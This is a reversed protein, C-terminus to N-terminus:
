KNIYAIASEAAIKGYVIALTIAGTSRAGQAGHAATAGAAFLGPIAEDAKTLVRSADDVAIGGYTSQVAPTILAAYYKPKDLRYLFKRGFEKDDSKADYSERVTKITAVLNEKNTKIKAALAEVSDASVFYGADNYGSMLKSEDIATQDFILFAESKTQQIMKQSIETVSQLDENVFRKGEHNVLASYSVLRSLSKGGISTLHCAPNIKIQQMDRVDGGVDLVMTIGDGTASTSGTTPRNVWTPNYKEILKPNGAFGGTAIIVAKANIAYKGDKSEVEIGSTKGANMIIKIAKTNVRCDVGVRVLEKTLYKVIHPGPASGDDTRVQFRDGKTVKGFPVGLEILWDIAEGSKDALARAAAPKIEPAMEFLRAYYDDETMKEVGLRKQLKSNTGRINTSVYMTDGGGLFGRKEVLIVKKGAYAANLAATMGAGGAGVVVIDTQVNKLKENKTSLSSEPSKRACAWVSFMLTLVFLISIARKM